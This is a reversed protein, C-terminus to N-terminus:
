YFVNVTLTGDCMVVVGFLVKRTFFLVILMQICTCSAYNCYSVVSKEEEEM